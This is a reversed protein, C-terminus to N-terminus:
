FLTLHRTDLILNTHKLLSIDALNQEKTDTIMETTVHRLELVIHWYFQFIGKHSKLWLSHCVRLNLPADLRKFTFGFGAHQSSNGLIM